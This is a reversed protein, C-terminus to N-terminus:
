RARVTRAVLYDALAEPHVKIRTGVLVSEIVGKDIFRYMTSKSVGLFERVDALDLLSKQSM